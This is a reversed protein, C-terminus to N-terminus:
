AAPAGDAATLRRAMRLAAAFSRLDAVGQGAIDFATGHDPSTRVFPLGLTVNVGHEVGWCWAPRSLVCALTDGPFPDVEVHTVRLPGRDRRAPSWEVPQAETPPRDSNKAFLTAGSETVGGLAVLVDCM